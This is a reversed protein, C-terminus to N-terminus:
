SIVGRDWLFRMISKHLARRDGSPDWAHTRICVGDSSYTSRVERLRDTWEGLAQEADRPAIQDDVSRWMDLLFEGAEDARMPIKVFYTEGDDNFLRTTM